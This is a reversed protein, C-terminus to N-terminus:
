LTYQPNVIQVEKVFNEIPEKTLKRFLTSLTPTFRKEVFPLTNFNNYLCLIKLIADYVQSNYFIKVLYSTFMHLHMEYSTGNLIVMRIRGPEEELYEIVEFYLSQILNLYEFDDPEEMKAFFSEIADERFRIIEVMQTEENEVFELYNM